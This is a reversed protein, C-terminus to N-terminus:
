RGDTAEEVIEISEKGIIWIWEPVSGLMKLEVGTKTPFAVVQFTEELYNFMWDVNPELVLKVIDGIKM